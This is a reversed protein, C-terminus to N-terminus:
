KPPKRITANLPFSQRSMWNVARDIREQTLPESARKEVRKLIRYLAKTGAEVTLRM